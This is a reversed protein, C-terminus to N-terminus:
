VKAGGRWSRARHAAGVYAPSLGFRRWSRLEILLYKGRRLVQGFKHGPLASIFADVDPFAISADRLVEVAVIADGALALQLGRKVTEVEPLEPM